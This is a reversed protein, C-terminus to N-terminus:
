SWTISQNNTACAQCQIGFGLCELNGWVIVHASRSEIFYTHTWFHLRKAFKQIQFLLLSIHSSNYHAWANSLKESVLQFWSINAVTAMVDVPKSSPPRWLDRGPSVHSLAQWRCWCLSSDPSSPLQHCCLCCSTRCGNQGTEWLLVSGSARIIKAFSGAHSCM